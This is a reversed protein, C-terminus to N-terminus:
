PVGCYKIVYINDGKPTIPSTFPGWSEKIKDIQDYPWKDKIESPSKSPTKGSDDSYWVVFNKCKGVDDNAAHKAATLCHEWIAKTNPNQLESETPIKPPAMGGGNRKYAVGAIFRRADVLKSANKSLVSTEGFVHGACTAEDLALLGFGARRARATGRTVAKRKGAPPATKGGRRGAKKGRSAARVSRVRKNAMEAVREERNRSYCRSGGRSCSLGEASGSVAHGVRALVRAVTLHPDAAPLAMILSRREMKRLPRSDARATWLGPGMAVATADLPEQAILKKAAKKRLVKLLRQVLRRACSM